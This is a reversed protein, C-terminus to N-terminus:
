GKKKHQKGFHLSTSLPRKPEVFNDGFLADNVDPQVIFVECAIHLM